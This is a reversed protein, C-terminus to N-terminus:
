CNTGRFELVPLHVIVLEVTGFFINKFFHNRAVSKKSALQEKPLYFIKKPKEKKNTLHVSWWPASWLASRSSSLQQSLILSLNIPYKIYQLRIYATRACHLPPTIMKM